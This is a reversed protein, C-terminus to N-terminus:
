WSGPTSGPVPVIRTRPTKGLGSPTSGARATRGPGRGARGAPRVGQEDGLPGQAGVLRALVQEDDALVVDDLIARDLGARQM